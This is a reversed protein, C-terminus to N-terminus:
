VIAIFRSFNEVQLVWGWCQSVRLSQPVELIEAIQGCLTNKRIKFLSISLENKMVVNFAYNRKKALTQVYEGLRM